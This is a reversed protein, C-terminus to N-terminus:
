QVRGSEPKWATGDALKAAVTFTEGHPVVLKPPLPALAAFTYRPTDKWPALLRAWANSAAAPIAVMLAIAAVAPAAALVAWMRHRPYPVADSFDRKRADAAVQEIAAECLRMSRAQESDDRVLEIIGLLRDGIHPHKRTLLRALQDARRNLYVWRYLAFPIAMLAFAALGFLALRPWSPTEWARDLGFMALYAVLVGFAAICVGQATKRSWVRSRFEALQQRLTEPIQLRGHVHGVSM